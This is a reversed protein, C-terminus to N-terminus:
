VPKLPGAEGNRGPPGAPVVAGASGTPGPSGVPGADGKPGQPGAAGVAGVPGTPGPPGSRVRIAKRGRRVRLELLEPTGKLVRREKSARKGGEFMWRCCGASDRRHRSYFHANMGEVRKSRAAVSARLIQHDPILACTRPRPDGGHRRWLRRRRKGAALWSTPRNLNPRRRRDNAAMCISSVAFLRRARRM